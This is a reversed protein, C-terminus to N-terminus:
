RLLAASRIGSREDRSMAIRERSHLHFGHPGTHLNFVKNGGLPQFRVYVLGISLLVISTLIVAFKNKM